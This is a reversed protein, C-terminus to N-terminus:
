PMTLSSICLSVGAEGGRVGNISIQASGEASPTGHSYTGYFVQTIFKGAHNPDASIIFGLADTHAYAAQGLLLAAPRLPAPGSRGCARPVLSLTCAFRAFGVQGYFGWDGAPGWLRTRAMM